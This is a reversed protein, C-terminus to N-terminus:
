LLSLFIETVIDNETYTIISKEVKKLWILRKGYQM